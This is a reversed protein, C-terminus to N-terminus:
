RKRRRLWIFLGIGLLASPLGFLFGLGIVAQLTSSLNLSQDPAAKARIAIFDDDHSLWEIMNLGLDLNGGNGLYANSLFDGDGVLIVRQERAETQEGDAAERPRKFVFGLDLPGAREGGGADFRIEGSLPGTETWARSVTSLLPQGEWDGARNWELAVAGPFLTLTRLERTVPHAPYEPVLAFDPNQIGFLQTTADVIVGPLFEVGLYEAIREMGAPKGPDTLWLLNGGQDLYDRVLDVEGPLLDVQPSAIVLLSTNEPIQPTQALNLARAKIGKRELEAGFNGLDHNAQGHPDREGHGSLFSIWREGQRATRLLANTIAQETLEQVRESRGQYVVRLEGDMTIGLERMREPEADPNVFHLEVEATHRQYRAVLERVQNRLVENERAYSTIVVPETLTDLLRASDESLSNRGGATWDAQRVYQTSLWALLGIAALFLVTFSYRQLRIGLTTKRTVDM